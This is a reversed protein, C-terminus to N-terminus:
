SDGHEIKLELTQIRYERTGFYQIWFARRRGSGLRRIISRIRNQPVVRFPAWTVYDDDSWSIYVPIIDGTVSAPKDHLIELSYINKNSLAGTDVNPTIISMHVTFISDVDAQSAYNQQYIQGGTKLAFYTENTNGRTSTAYRGIFMNNGPFRYTGVGTTVPNNYQYQTGPVSFNTGDIVYCPWTGNYDNPLFGSLTILAGTALGHAVSTTVVVAGTTANVAITCALSTGFSDISRWESWHQTGLDYTFTKNISPVNLVYFTHGRQKVSYATIQLTNAKSMNLTLMRDIYPTSIQQPKFGNLQLVSFGRASTQSMWILSNETQVISGSAACGIEFQTNPVPSLPSAPAPNGANYFFQTSTEGLAVIYNLHRSIAVLPDPYASASVFGLANWSTPASLDSNFIRGDAVGIFTFGDMNVIGPVLTGVAGPFDVDVIQALAGAITLTYGTTDTTIVLRNSGVVDSEAYSAHANSNTFSTTGISAGTVANYLTSDQNVYTVGSAQWYYVGHCDTVASITNVSSLGQRRSVFPLTTENGGDEIYCNILRADQSAAYDRPAPNEVLPVRITQYQDRPDLPM